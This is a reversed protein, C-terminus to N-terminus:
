WYIDISEVKGISRWESGDLGETQYDSGEVVYAIKDCSEGYGYDGEGVGTCDIYVLGRDITNFANLAHYVGFPLPLRSGYISYSYHPNLYIDVYGAKIGAAEANNHIERAFEACIYEWEVYPGLDTPDRKIFDILEQYTPDEAEPNNFLRIEEGDSGYVPIVVIQEALEGQLDDIEGQLDNSRSYSQGLLMGLAIVAILGIAVAWKFRKSIGEKERYLIEYNQEYGRLREELFGQMTERSDLLNKGCNLCVEAGVRNIAGCRPCIM